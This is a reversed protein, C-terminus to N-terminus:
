KPDKPVIGTIYIEDMDPTSAHFTSITFKRVIDRAYALAVDRRWADNIWLNWELPKHDKNPEDWWIHPDIVKAIEKTINYEFKSM